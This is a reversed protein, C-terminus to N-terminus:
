SNTMKDLTVNNLTHILSNTMINLAVNVHLNEPSFILLNADGFTFWNRALHLDSKSFSECHMHILKMQKM